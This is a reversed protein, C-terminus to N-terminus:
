KSTKACDAVDSLMMDIGHELSDSIFSLNEKAATPSGPLNIILSKNRIGSVGRSLMGRPTIEMSKMRMYESIGPAEKEIVEKTCEPTIDRNSFGTGGTTIILHYNKNSADVLAKVIAEKVDPVVGIFDVSFGAKELVEKVMPGALDDRQGTYGRDSITIVKAKYM